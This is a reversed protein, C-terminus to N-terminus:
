SSVPLWKTHCDTVAVRSSLSSRPWRCCIRLTSVLRRIAPLLQAHPPARTRSHRPQSAFDWHLPHASGDAALSHVCPHVDAGEPREFQQRWELPIGCRNQLSIRDHFTVVTAQDMQGPAATIRMALEAVGDGNSIAIELPTDNGVAAVSFSRSLGLIGGLGHAGSHIRVSQGERVALGVRAASSAQWTIVVHNGHSQWTSAM